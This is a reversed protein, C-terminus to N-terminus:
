KHKKTRNKLISFVLINLHWHSLNLQFFPQFINHHSPFILLTVNRFYCSFLMEHSFPRPTSVEELTASPFISHITVYTLLNLLKIIRIQSNLLHENPIKSWSISHLSMWQPKGPPDTTFFKGALCSVYIRDRSRSSGRSFSIAVWEVIRAQSTRVPAQHAVTQPTAFLWIWSLSQVPM